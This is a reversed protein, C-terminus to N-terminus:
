AWTSADEGRNYVVREGRQYAERKLEDIRKCARWEHSFEGVCTADAFPRPREMVQAVTNGNKDHTTNLYFRILGDLM